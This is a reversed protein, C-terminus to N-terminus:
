EAALTSARDAQSVLVRQRWAAERAEARAAEEDARAAVTGADLALRLGRATAEAAAAEIRAAGHATWGDALASLAAAAAAAFAAEAVLQERRALQAAYGAVLDDFSDLEEADHVAEVVFRVFGEDDRIGAFLSDADAEDANMTRQYGFAEPDLPTASLLHDRWRGPQDELVMQLGPHAKALDSLRERFGTRTRRRGEDATPLTDFDLAGDLPRFAYWLPLLNAASGSRQRGRWELVLGAVLRSGDPLDWELAVHGTDGTLVYGELKAGGVTQRRGPLVVAFLLRLLVSKGGGNELFMVASRAAVGDATLDVTLPDFRAGAPGIGELRFRRLALTM